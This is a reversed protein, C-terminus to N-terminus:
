AAQWELDVSGAPFSLSVLRFADNPNNNRDSLYLVTSDPQKAVAAGPASM